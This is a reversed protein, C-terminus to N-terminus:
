ADDRVGEQEREPHQMNNQREYDRVREPHAKKWATVRAICAERHAIYYLRDYDPHRARWAAVAAKARSRRDVTDQLGEVRVLM